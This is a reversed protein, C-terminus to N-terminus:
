AAASPQATRRAQSGTTRLRGGATAAFNYSQLHLRAHALRCLQAQPRRSYHSTTSALSTKLEDVISRGKINHLKLSFFFDERLYTPETEGSELPQGDEDLVPKKLDFILKFADGIQQENEFFKAFDFHQFGTEVAKLLFDNLNFTKDNPRFNMTGVGLLPMDNGDLLTVRPNVDM